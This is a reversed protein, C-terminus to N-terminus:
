RGMVRIKLEKRQIIALNERLKNGFNKSKRNEYEKVLNPPPLDFIVQDIVNGDGTQMRTNYVKNNYQNLKLIRLTAFTKKYRKKWAKLKNTLEFHIWSDVLLRGGKIYDNFGPSTIVFLNRKFRMMKLIEEYAVQESYMAKKSNGAVGAEDLMIAKGVKNGAEDLELMLNFFDKITFCVRSMDFTPDATLCLDIAALSKGTGPHGTFSIVYNGKDLYIRRKIYRIYSNDKNM